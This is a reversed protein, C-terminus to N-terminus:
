APAIVSGLILPAVDYSRARDAVGVPGAPAESAGAPRTAGSAIVATGTRWGPRQIAAAITRTRITVITWETAVLGRKPQPM